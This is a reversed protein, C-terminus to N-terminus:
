RTLIWDVAEALDDAVYDATEMPDPKPTIQALLEEQAGKGTRLLISLGCKANKGTTVDTLKDGIFVCNSLDLSMKKAADLVLKPLPKRCQCREQPSHICIQYLDVKAGEEALLENLREHIEPLVHPDIIGRGVGSQNTIVVIKYGSERARRIARAAGPILEILRPDNIYVRDINITGDRDLFLAKDM